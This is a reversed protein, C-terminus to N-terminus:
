FDNYARSLSFRNQALRVLTEYSSNSGGNGQVSAACNEEARALSACLEVSGAMRDSIAVVQQELKQMLDDQM